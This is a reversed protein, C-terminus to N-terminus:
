KPSPADTGGFQRKWRGKDLPTHHIHFNDGLARHMMETYYIFGRMVLFRNAPACHGLRVTPFQYTAQFPIFTGM